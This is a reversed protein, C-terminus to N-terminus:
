RRRIVRRRRRQRSLGCMKAVNSLVNGYGGQAHVMENTAHAALAVPVVCAAATAAGAAGAKARRYLKSCFSETTDPGSPAMQEPAPPEAMVLNENTTQPPPPLIQNPNPNCCPICPYEGSSGGAFTGSPVADGVAEPQDCSMTDLILLLTQLDALDDEDLSSGITLKGLLADITADVERVVNDRDVRVSSGVDALVSPPPREAEAAAM